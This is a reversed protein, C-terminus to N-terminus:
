GQTEIVYTTIKAVNTAKANAFEYVYCFEYLPKANKKGGSLRFTGNVAGAKGHTAVQDIFLETTTDRNPNSFVATVATKGVIPAIGVVKWCVDDSVSQRILEVDGTVFAVTLNQVFLNKPSNGCDERLTIQTM